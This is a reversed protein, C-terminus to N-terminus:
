AVNMSAWTLAPNSGAALWPSSRTWPSLRRRMASVSVAQHRDSTMMGAMAAPLRGSSIRPASNALRILMRASSAM